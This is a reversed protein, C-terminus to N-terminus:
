PGPRRAPGPLVAGGVALPAAVRLVPAGAEADPLDVTSRWVASAMTRVPSSRVVSRNDAARLASPVAGADPVLHTGPRVVGLVRGPCKRVEFPSVSMGRPLGQEPASPRSGGRLPTLLPAGAM